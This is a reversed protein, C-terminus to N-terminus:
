HIWCPEDNVTITGPPLGCFEYKGDTGTVATAIVVGNSDTLTIIAGPLAQDCTDTVSGSISSPPPCFSIFSVAGSRRLKLSVQKVNPKNISFVQYSNDGMLPVRFTDKTMVGNATKWVVTISTERDIDLLGIDGVYEAEGNFDFIITGGNVNDDPITIKPDENQIILVNGLPNCNPGAGCPEGGKGLGPGSPDCMINPSGLDPDNSQGARSTSFLRPCLEGELGGKTSLTLGYKAWEDCV